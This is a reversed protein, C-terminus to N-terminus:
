QMDPNPGQLWTSNYWAWYERLNDLLYQREEDTHTTSTFWEIWVQAPYPGPGYDPVMPSPIPSTISMDDDEESLENALIDMIESDFDDEDDSYTVDIVTPLPAFLPNRGIPGNTLLPTPRIRRRPAPPPSSPPSYPPPTSPPTRPGTVTLDIPNSSSGYTNM